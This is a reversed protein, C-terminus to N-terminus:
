RSPERADLLRQMSRLARHHLQNVANVNKGVHAATQENSYGLV